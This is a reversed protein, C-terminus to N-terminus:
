SPCRASSTGRRSGGSKGRRGRARPFGCRRREPSSSISGTPEAGQRTMVEGRSFPAHRLSAVLRERDKEPLHDFFDVRALAQRRRAIEEETKSAKRKRSEETVFIAHAPISLPIGARNLAFYTRTRVASDTPDDVALDTLWYRVAYRGYSEHFDMLVCQPMPETAVHEIPAARVAENVTEIVDGPPFRYDVNFYM